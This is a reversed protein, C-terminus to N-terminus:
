NFKNEDILCLIRLWTLDILLDIHCMPGKPLMSSSKDVNYTKTGFKLPWQYQTGNSRYAFTLFNEIQISRVLTEHFYSSSKETGCHLSFGRVFEKIWILIEYHSEIVLLINQGEHAEAIFHEIRSQIQQMEGISWCTLMKYLLKQRQWM